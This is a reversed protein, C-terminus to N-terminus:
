KRNTQQLILAGTLFAFVGAGLCTIWLPLYQSIFLVSGGLILLVAALLLVVGLSLGVLKGSLFRVAEQAPPGATSALTQMFLSQTRNLLKDLEPRDNSSSEPAGM